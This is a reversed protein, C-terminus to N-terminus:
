TVKAIWEHPNRLQFRVPVAPWSLHVSNRAPVPLRLKPQGPPKDNAVPPRISIVAVNPAM